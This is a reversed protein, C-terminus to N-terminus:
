NISENITFARCSVHYFRHFGAAGQLSIIHLMQAPLTSNLQCCLFLSWFLLLSSAVPILNLFYLTVNTPKKPRYRDTGPEECLMSLNYRLRQTRDTCAKVYMEIINHRHLKPESDGVWDLTLNYIKFLHKYHFSKSLKKPSASFIPAVPSLVDVCNRRFLFFQFCLLLSYLKVPKIYYHVFM